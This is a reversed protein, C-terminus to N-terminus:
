AQSLYGPQTLPAARDNVVANMGGVLLGLAEPDLDLLLFDGAAWANDAIVVVPKRLFHPLVARGSVLRAAMTAIQLPTALVYGQGVGAIVTEGLRWETGSSALKWEPTPMLGAREGPIDVGLPAGFGLRHAMAALREIGLRGATEYFFVDCHSKSRTTTYACLVTVAM